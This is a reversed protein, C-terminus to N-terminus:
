LNPMIKASMKRRTTIECDVEVWFNQADRRTSAFTNNYKAPDIYTTVDAINTQNINLPDYMYNRDLVMFNENMGSAFNGKAVDLNTMYWLWAPQKGATHMSIPQIPIDNRYTTGFWAMQETLLDQFGIEDLQPKHLDDMTEINTDWSNGQSYCVRPTLSIIGIIYSPEDIKIEIHGGKHKTGIVGRGALTGLPQNIGGVESQTFSVVQQFVVEKSLGGMYIPTEAKRYIEHDYVTQQWDDYSGGSIAIRNLMYYVKMSLNLTDITFQNGEATSIATIASIGNDGEIWETNIWNNLIDSQYTKVCLGELPYQISAHFTQQQIIWDFLKAYLPIPTTENIIIPTTTKIQSLLYERMDDIDTLNFASLKVDRDQIDLDPIEMYFGGLWNLEYGTKVKGTYYITGADVQKQTFEFLESAKKWIYNGTADGHGLMILVDDPTPSKEAIAVSIILETQETLPYNPILPNNTNGTLTLQNLQPTGNVTHICAVNNLYTYNIGAPQHTTYAYQEQKNAYYNKFIDYYGLLPIANFVRDINEGIISPKPTGIGNIGLYSLLCSPNIQKRGTDNNSDAKPNILPLKITNMKLGIGLKNNHLQAQYLRIPVQFIDLQMKFSGFLPGVTPHTLADANLRITWSDGNLAVQSMFPVLVGPAMTSKWKYSLDHTSREYSRLYAKDKKGSGLREGGITVEQAM